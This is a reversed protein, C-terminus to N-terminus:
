KIKKLKNGINYELDLKKKDIDRSLVTTTISAPYHEELAKSYIIKMGEVAPIIDEIIEYLDMGSLLADKDSPGSCSLWYLLNVNELVFNCLNNNFKKLKEYKSDVYTNKKNIAETLDLAREMSMEDKKLGLIERIYDVNKKDIANINADFLHQKDIPYFFYFQGKIPANSRGNKNNTEKYESLQFGSM